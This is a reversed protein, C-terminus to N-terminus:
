KTISLWQIKKGSEVNLLGSTMVTDGAKLGHSVALYTDYEKGLTIPRLVPQSSHHILYVSPQNKDGTLATRPIVLASSQKEQNFTISVNMGALLKQQKNNVIRIEVPFTKAASAVPIIATIKGSYILDSYADARVQVLMGKKLRAVENERVFVNVLVEDLCAMLGLPSGPTVYEGPNVKKDIITGSEPAKVLTQGVQNKSIRLQSAANQMQLKANEVEMGSANGSALLERLKAFDSKSKEYNDNSIEFSSFRISKDVKVLVSGKSVNIGKEIASYVVKGDAEATLSIIKGAEVTGRYNFAESFNVEKVIAAQAAFGVTKLEQKIENQANDQNASLRYWVLVSICLLTLGGIFLNRVSYNTTLKHDM